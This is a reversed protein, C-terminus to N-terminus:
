WELDERQVRYVRNIANKPVEKVQILSFPKRASPNFNVKLYGRATLKGACLACSWTWKEKLNRLPVLAIRLGCFICKEKAITEKLAPPIGFAWM